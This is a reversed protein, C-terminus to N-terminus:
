MRREDIVDIINILTNKLLKRFEAISNRPSVAERCPTQSVNLKEEETREDAEDLPRSPTPRRLVARFPDRLARLPGREAARRELVHGDDRGSDVVQVEEDAAGVVGDVGLAVAVARPLRLSPKSYYSSEDFLLRQHYLDKTERSTFNSSNGAGERRM